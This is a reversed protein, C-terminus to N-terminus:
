PVTSGYKGFLVFLASCLLLIPCCSPFLLISRMVPCYSVVVSCCRIYRVYLVSCSWLIFMTDYSCDILYLTRMYMRVTYM